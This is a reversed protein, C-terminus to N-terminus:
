TIENHKMKELLGRTALSNQPNFMSSHRLEQFVHNLLAHHKGPPEPPLADAQLALSGCKIGPDPLDGLFLFLKDM